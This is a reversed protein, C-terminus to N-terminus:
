IETHQMGTIRLVYIGDLNVTNRNAELGTAVPSPQVHTEESAASFCFLYNTIEGGRSHCGETVWQEHWDLQKHYMSEVYRTSANGKQQIM